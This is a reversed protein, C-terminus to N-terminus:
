YEGVRVTAPRIVAGDQTYCPLVVSHIRTSRGKPRPGATETKFRGALGQSDAGEVLETDIDIAHHKSLYAGAGRFVVDKFVLEGFAEWLGRDPLFALADAIRHVQDIVFKVTDRRTAETPLVPQDEKAAQAMRQRVDEIRKEGRVLLQREKEELLADAVRGLGDAWARLRVLADFLARDFAVAEEEACGVGRVLLAPQLMRDHVFALPRLVTVEDAESPPVFAWLMTFGDKPCARLAARFQEVSRAEQFRELRLAGAETLRGVLHASARHLRTLPAEGLRPDLLGAEWLARFGELEVKRLEPEPTNVGVWEVLGRLRERVVDPLSRSALLPAMAEGLETDSGGGSQVDSTAAAQPRLGHRAAVAELLLLASRIKEAPMEMGPLLRLGEYVQGVLARAEAVPSEVESGEGVRVIGGDREPHVRRYAAQAARRAAELTEAYIHGAPSGDFEIAWRKM